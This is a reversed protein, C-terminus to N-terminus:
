SERKTRKYSFISKNELHMKGVINYFDLFFFTLYFYLFCFLYVHIYFYFIFIYTYAVRWVIFTGFRLQTCIKSIMETIFSCKFKILGHKIGWRVPPFFDNTRWGFVFSLSLSMAIWNIKEKKTPVMCGIGNECARQAM